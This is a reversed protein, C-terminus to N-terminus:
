FLLLLLLRSLLQYLRSYSGWSLQEVVLTNQQMSGNFEVQTDNILTAEVIPISSTDVNNSFGVYEVTQLPDSSIIPQGKAIISHSVSEGGEAPKEYKRHTKRERTVVSRM